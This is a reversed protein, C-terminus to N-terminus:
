TREMYAIESETLNYKRYLQENIEDISRSWDIDSNDTFDQWPIIYGMSSSKIPEELVLAAFFTTQMYKLFNRCDNKHESAYLMMRSNGFASHLPLIEAIGGIRKKVNSITPSSSVIKCKPYASIM